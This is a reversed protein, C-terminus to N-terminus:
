LVHLQSKQGRHGGKSFTVRRKRRQGEKGPTRKHTGDSCVDISRAETECIIVGTECIWEM